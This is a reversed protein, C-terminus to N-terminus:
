PGPAPAATQLAPRLRAPGHRYCLALVSGLAAFLVTMAFTEASILFQAGGLLGLLVGAGWAPMRGRGFVDTLIGFVLPPGPASVLFGQSVGRAGRFLSFGYLV